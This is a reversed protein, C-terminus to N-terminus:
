YESLKLFDPRKEALVISTKGYINTQMIQAALPYDVKWVWAGYYTGGKCTTIVTGDDKTENAPVTLTQTEYNLWGHKMAYKGISIIENKPIGTKVYPVLANVVEVTKITSADKMDHFLQLLVTKQRDARASDSDIKRIRCYALAQYGDLKVLGPEADITVHDYRKQHNNIENIEAATMEVTVGGLADVISEFSDFNVLVYNDINVKYMNEVCRIYCDIGGTSMAGNIKGFQGTSKDGETTEWYVYADRLISTLTITGTDINVSAIIASDARTGEEEIDEERTDEGILLINLVHTSSCPTGNYYWTKIMSRLSSIKSRPDEYIPDFNEVLKDMGSWDEVAVPRDQINDDTVTNLANNIYYYAYIGAGIVAILLVTIVTIFIKGKKTKSWKQKEKVAAASYKETDGALSYLDVAGNDDATFANARNGNEEAPLAKECEEESGGNNEKEADAEDSANEEEFTEEIIKEANESYDADDSNGAPDTKTNNNKEDTSDPEDKSVGKVLAENEERRKRVEKLIDDVSYSPDSM